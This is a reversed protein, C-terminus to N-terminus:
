RVVLSKTFHKEGITYRIFYVGASFDATNVFFKNEGAVSKGEFIQQVTEGLVNLCKISIFSARETKVPLCTIGKSPNPFINEIEAKTNVAIMGTTGAVKFHFFGLPAVIPRVQQKGSNSQAQIYYFVETGAVQAPIQGQWINNGSFNMPSSQYAQTTDTTYYLTATQIGTRHEIKATVFYPSTTNYTDRLQQHIILLPDNAGIEKTICHLAGLSPISASSNIGVVKYGPCSERWIRLATTDQPIGYTPVIITKNIFSANTYTYYNAFASHPYQGNDPPMPIRVVKYPTGFVSLYNSLVYQLNAEIQPGDAIGQPYQGVMLTEEDLLKIHMDIHHIDDYPLTEMKIYRDIGMFNKMITDVEAETHNSGFGAAPLNDTLILKSAFGTGQGDCMFNGGTNVLKNNGQTTHYVPINLYNALGNPVTDDKPRNRNYIWDIFVLSDVENTYACWQGYDRCWVSNFPLNLFTVGGTDIGNSQLDNIVGAANNTLIFMRCEQKGYRVIERLIGPYSTWAILYGQSEEWEAMTRVPSNPPDFLDSASRDNETSLPAVYQPMQSLEVSTAYRPLIQSFSPLAMLVAVVLFFHKM